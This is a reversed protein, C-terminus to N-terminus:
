HFKKRIAIINQYAFIECFVPSYSKIEVMSRPLLRFFQYDPLIDWIDRFFTRSSVNMENFEFHVADIVGRNISDAAGKLVALENGETDIKLLAISEINLELVFSDLTVVEVDHAVSDKKHINEIVDRYLSAHSSGDDHKYDYLRLTCKKEGLAVNFCEAYDHIRAYLTKFTIPHPEFSFMRLRPNIKNILTTYDGVNAGVDVIVSNQALNTVLKKIMSLEGNVRANEYNLVGLGSLSLRYLLRNFGNFVKRAFLFRYIKVLLDIM